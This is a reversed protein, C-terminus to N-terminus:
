LYLNLKLFMAHPICLKVNRLMVTVSFKSFDGSFWNSSRNLRIRYCPADVSFFCVFFVLQVSIKDVALSWLRLSVCSCCRVSCCVCWLVSTVCTVHVSKSLYLMYFYKVNLLMNLLYFDFTCIDGHPWWVIWTFAGFHKQWWPEHWVASNCWKFVYM